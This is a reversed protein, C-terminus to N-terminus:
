YNWVHLIAAGVVAVTMVALWGEGIGFYIIGIGCVIAVLRM